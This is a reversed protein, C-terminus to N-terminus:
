GEPLPVKPARIQAAQAATFLRALDDQAMVKSQWLEQAEDVTMAPDICSAAILAPPFTDPNHPLEVLQHRPVKADLQAQRAKARQDATAPHDARLEEFQTGGIRAFRFVVAAGNTVAHAIAEAREDGTLLDIRDGEAEDLWITVPVEAPKKAALIAAVTTTM